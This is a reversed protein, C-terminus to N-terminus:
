SAGGERILDALEERHEATLPEDEQAALIQRKLRAAVLAERAVALDATSHKTKHLRALAAHAATQTPITV